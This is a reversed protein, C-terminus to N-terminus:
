DGSFRVYTHLERSASLFAVVANLRNRLEASASRSRLEALEEILVPIQLQNFVTEGYPDIFRLCVSDRPALGLVELPFGNGGYHAITAGGENERRLEIYQVM